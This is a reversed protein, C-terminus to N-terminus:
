ELLNKMKSSKKRQNKCFPLITQAIVMDSSDILQVNHVRVAAPSRKIHLHKKKLSMRGWTQLYFHTTSLAAYKKEHFEWDKILLSWRRSDTGFTLSVGPDDFALKKLYMHRLDTKSADYSICSFATGAQITKAWVAKFLMMLVNVAEMKDLDFSRRCRYIETVAGYPVFRRITFSRKTGDRTVISAYEVPLKTGTTKFVVQICGVINRQRNFVLFTSTNCWYLRRDCEIQQQRDPMDAPYCFAIFKQHIPEPMKDAPFEELHFQQHDFSVPSGVTPRSFGACFCSFANWM